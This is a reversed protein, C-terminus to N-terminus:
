SVPSFFFLFFARSVKWVLLLILALFPIFLLSLLSREVVKPLLRAEQETRRCSRRRRCFDANDDVAFHANAAFPLCSLAVLHFLM